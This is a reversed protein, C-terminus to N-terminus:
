YPRGPGQSRRFFWHSVMLGPCYGTLAAFLFFLAPIYLVWSVQAFGTLAIGLWVIGGSVLFFMRMPPNVKYKDM